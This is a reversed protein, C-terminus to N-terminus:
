RLDFPNRHHNNKAFWQADQQVLIGRKDPIWPTGFRQLHTTERYRKFTCRCECHGGRQRTEDAHWMCHHEDGGKEKKGHEVRLHGSTSHRWCSVHLCPEMAYEDECFKRLNGMGDACAAYQKSGGVDHLGNQEMHSSCQAAAGNADTRGSDVEACGARCARYERRQPDPAFAYKIWCKQNCCSEIHHAEFAAHPPQAWWKSVALKPVACCAADGEDRQAADCAPDGAFPQYQECAQASSEPEGVCVGSHFRGRARRPAYGTHSKDLLFCKRHSKHDTPGYRYSWGACDQHAECAAVCAEQTMKAPRAVFPGWTQTARFEALHIAQDPIVKSCNKKASVAAIFLCFAFLKM